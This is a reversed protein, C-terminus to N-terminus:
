RWTIRVIQVIIDSEEDLWIGIGGVVMECLELTGAAGHVQIQLRNEIFEAALEVVVAGLPLTEEGVQVESVDGTIGDHVLPERCEFNSM